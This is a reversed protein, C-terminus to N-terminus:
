STLRDRLLSHRVQVNEGKPPTQELQGDSFIDCDRPAKGSLGVQKTWEYCTDVVSSGTNVVATAFIFCWLLLDHAILFLYTSRTFAEKVV